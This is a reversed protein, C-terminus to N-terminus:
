TVEVVGEKWLLFCAVCSPSVCNNTLEECSVAFRNRTNVCATQFIRRGDACVLSGKTTVKFHFQWSHSSSITKLILKLSVSQRARSIARVVKSRDFETIAPEFKVTHM